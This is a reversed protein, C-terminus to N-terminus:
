VCQHCLTLLLKCLWELPISIKGRTRRVTVKFESNMGNICQIIKGLAGFINSWIRQDEAKNQEKLPCSVLTWEVNNRPKLRAEKKHFQIFSPCAKPRPWMLTLTNNVRSINISNRSPPDFKDPVLLSLHLSSPWFSINIHRCFPALQCEQGRAKTEEGGM